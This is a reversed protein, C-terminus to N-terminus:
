SMDGLTVIGGSTSRATRVCGAWDSDTYTTVVKVIEQWPFKIILRPTGILYRRIKNLLHWHKKLPASMARAAEKVSIKIDIRDAAM